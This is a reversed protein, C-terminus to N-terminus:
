LKPSINYYRHLLREATDILQKQDSNFNKSKGDIILKVHSFYAAPDKDAKSAYALYLNPLDVEGKAVKNFDRTASSLIELVDGVEMMDKILGEDIQAEGICDCLYMLTASMIKKRHNLLDEFGSNKRLFSQLNGKLVSKVEARIARILVDSFRLAKSVSGELYYNLIHWLELELFVGYEIFDECGQTLKSLLVRDNSIIAEIAKETNEPGWLKILNVSIENIWICILKIKVQLEENNRPLKPHFKVQELMLLFATIWSYSHRSFLVKSIGNSHHDGEKEIAIHVSHLKPCHFAISLKLPPNTDALSVYFTNVVETFVAHKRSTAHLNHAALYDLAVQQTISKRQKMYDVVENVLESPIGAAIAINKAHLGMHGKQIGESIMARIAAFNCALGVCAIIQALEATSPNGLIYASAQYAPNSQLAGGKTGVAIPFDIRGVLCEDEISYENLPLYKGSRCAWTHAAAEIARTDQGTATGVAQMGNLIGKNHTCARYVSARAFFYSEMFGQAIVRGPIKKYELASIPIKFWASARRETCYTSLIKLGIRCQLLNQIDPALEECINNIINAGMAEAVNVSIEVVGSDTSLESFTIDNVGGGRAVLRPCYLRNARAILSAKSSSILSSAAAATLGLVQIQGLMIPQTSSASFGGHDKILKAATSAAAIISPEETAMPIIYDRSNMKFYLGLGVPLSLKGVCNEVLLDATKLDIGEIYAGNVNPYMSRLIDIREQIPKKHFDTLHRLM